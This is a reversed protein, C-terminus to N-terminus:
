TLRRGLRFLPFLRGTQDMYERYSDGFREIMMEEESSVRTIYMFSVASSYIVFMLWNSTLVFTGLCYLFFASYMPHRVLRYPGTTVLAHDQHIEVVGSWHKGLALHSSAFLILYLMMLIMGLTWRLWPSLGIHAFDFWTTLPYLFLVLYDIALVRFGLVALQQNKAFAKQTGRARAQFYVRVILNVVWFIAFGLRFPAENVPDM